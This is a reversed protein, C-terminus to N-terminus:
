AAQRAIEPGLFTPDCPRRSKTRRPVSANAERERGEIDDGRQPPAGTLVARGGSIQEAFLLVGCRPRHSYHASHLSAPRRPVLEAMSLAFAYARRMRSRRIATANEPQAKGVWMRRATDAAAHVDPVDAIAPQAKASAPEIVRSSRMVTVSIWLRVAAQILSRGGTEERERRQSPGHHVCLANLSRLARCRLGTASSSDCCRGENLEWWGQARM